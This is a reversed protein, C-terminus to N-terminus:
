HKVKFGWNLINSKIFMMYGATIHSYASVHQVNKHKNVNRCTWNQGTPSFFSTLFQLEVLPWKLRVGLHTM